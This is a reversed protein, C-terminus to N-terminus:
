QVISTLDQGLSQWENWYKLGNWLWYRGSTPSPVDYANRTFKLNKSGNLYPAVQTSTCLTHSFVSALVDTQTGVIIRNDYASNNALDFGITGGGVASCNLFFTISRFNHELTNNYIQANKSTSIFVAADGSRRVTNNRIIASGSIEYFIGAYRNDEVRNGEILTGTNNSDFWIGDGANHHVFNNRVTVNASQGIKQERGNYAIENGEIVSNSSYTGLYGGSTNHHIYNYRITSASPIVIGTMNSVLENYEV